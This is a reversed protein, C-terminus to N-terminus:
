TLAVQALLPVLPPPLAKNHSPSGFRKPWLEFLKLPVSKAEAAKGGDGKGLSNAVVGCIDSNQNSPHSRGRQGVLNRSFVPRAELAMCLANGIDFIGLLAVCFPPSFCLGRREASLM